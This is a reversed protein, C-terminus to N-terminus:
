SLQYEPATLVLKAVERADGRVRRRVDDSFADQVLLDVYFAAPDDSCGHDAALAAPDFRASDDVLALAANSRALTTTTNIWSPGGDWGAVTPPAYLAQGMRECADALEDTPVTPSTVELARITGVAFEVPSKVRRRRIAPDFFLRSRLIMEVPIRTEYRADRYAAAIPEILEDSPEDVESVLMAFLKRALFRACSPQDLLIEAIADGDFSGTRGHVTKEGPDFESPDHRYRGRVVFTGTFARAAEQVDKETYHGRGLTFLEMVERAYNENPHGKRSETADLWVLMAPDRAIERLLDGFDGLAHARLLENQRLMAAPDKVKAISTAFHDHWFLTLRERLPDPTFIMRYLWAAQLGRAGGSAGPGRAMADMLRAFQEATSGDGAEAEGSLLRDVSAVPGAELDRQLVGWPAAFGARRHLHAVEPLDWPADATPEYRSWARAPDNLLDTSRM